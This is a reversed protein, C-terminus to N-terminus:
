GNLRFLMVAIAVSHLVAIFVFFLYGQQKPTLNM